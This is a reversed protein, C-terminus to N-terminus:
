KNKYDREYFGDCKFHVAMGGGIGRKLYGASCRDCLVSDFNHNINHFIELCYNCKDCKYEYTPM